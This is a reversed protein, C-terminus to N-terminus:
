PIVRSSAGLHEGAQLLDDLEAVPLASVRAKSHDGIVLRCHDIAAGGRVEACRGIMSRRLDPVGEVCADELVITNEIASDRVTCKAGISTAPGLSSNDVVTGRGIFLPGALRSRTVVAGAEVVVLGRVSTQADISGAIEPSRQALLVRNADLLGEVDGTDQWYGKYQEATVTCGSAVLHQLADTIELEGRWSPEIADVAAHIAATLFYVGTVALNSKPQAPKEVLGTVVGETDVEAVGYSRPDAVETVLLQADPRRDRFTRASRGIGHALINDGLYMVFDEDGLFDRAVRVTHALGRPEDQRLYTIRMGLDSGDGIVRQVEAGNDGVIIGAEQVGIRRVNELCHRLVPKGAVPALQKSMSYTFPRLRTGKGGSLILAKM